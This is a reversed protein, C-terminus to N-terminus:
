NNIQSSTEATWGPGAESVTADGPRSPPCVLQAGAVNPRTLRGRRRKSSDGHPAAFWQFRGSVSEGFQPNWPVLM